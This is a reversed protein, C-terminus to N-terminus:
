NGMFGIRGEERRNIRQMGYWVVGSSEVSQYTSGLWYAADDNGFMLKYANSNTDKLYEAGTYIYYNSKITVSEVDTGLVKGDFTTFNTASSTQTLGDSTYAVKGAEAMTYTVEKGYEDYNAIEPDYGIVRNIDEVNVSRTKTSDAHEGSGYPACLSNVVTVCSLYDDKGKFIQSSVVNKSSMLLIKGNEAGLVQWGNVDTYGSVGSVYNVYDGVTLTTTGESTTKSVKTGNQVWKDSTGALYSELYDLAYQENKAAQNYDKAANQAYHLIGDNQISSIAVAALILLVVITIILAILTIGKEMKTKEKM